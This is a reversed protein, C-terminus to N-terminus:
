LGIQEVLVDGIRAEISVGKVYGSCTYAFTNTSVFALLLLTKKM